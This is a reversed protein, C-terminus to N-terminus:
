SDHCPHVIRIPRCDDPDDDFCIAYDILHLPCLSAALAADTLREGLTRDLRLTTIALKDADILTARADNYTDDDLDAHSDALLTNIADTLNM